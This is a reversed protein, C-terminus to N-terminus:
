ESRYIDILHMLSNDNTIKPIFKYVLKFQEANLHLAHEFLLIAENHLGLLYNAIAEFYIMDDFEKNEIRAMSIIDLALNYSDAQLAFATLQKYSKRSRAQPNLGLLHVITQRLTTEDKMKAAAEALSILYSVKNEEFQLAKRYFHAANEWQKDRKYTIGIRYFAQHFKPDSNIAKRYHTRAKAYDKLKEYCLGIAYHLEEYPKSIEIAKKYNDVAKHYQKLKFYADGCERYALDYNENIAVAFEYAEVSREYLGLFYYATGLNHWALYSYPDRDILKKHFEVSDEFADALEVSYWMRSLAEFNAPNRTLCSKLCEYVKDYMGVDEYVDAKELWLEEVETEEAFSMASDIIELAKKHESRSLHIDARLLYIGLDKPEFMEAKDLLEFAEKHKRQQMMFSAKKTLLTASFPYVEIAYNVVELAKSYDLKMEYYEVLDELDNIDFFAPQRKDLMEEYKALTQEINNQYFDENEDEFM